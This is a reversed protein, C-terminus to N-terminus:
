NNKLQIIQSLLNLKKEDDNALGPYEGNFSEEGRFSSTVLRVREINLSWTKEVLDACISEWKQRHLEGLTNETYWAVEYDNAYGKLDNLFVAVMKFDYQPLTSSLTADEALKEDKILQKVQFHAMAGLGQIYANLETVYNRQSSGRNKFGQSDAFESAGEEFKALYALQDKTYKHHFRARFASTNERMKRFVNLPKASVPKLKGTKKNPNKYIGKILLLVVLTVRTFAARILVSATNIDKYEKSHRLMYHFSALQRCLKQLNDSLASLDYTASQENTVSYLDKIQLAGDILQAGLGVTGIALSALGIEAM